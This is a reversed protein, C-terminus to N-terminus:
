GRSPTVIEDAVWRAVGDPYPAGLSLDVHTLGAGVAAGVVARTAAPDDYSVPVLWGRPPGRPDAPLMGDSGRRM